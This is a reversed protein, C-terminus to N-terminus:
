TNSPSLVQTIHGQRFPPVWGDRPTPAGSCIDPLDAGLPLLRLEQPSSSATQNEGVSKGATEM